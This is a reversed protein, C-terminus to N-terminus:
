KARAAPRREAMAARVTLVGGPRSVAFEAVEGTWL